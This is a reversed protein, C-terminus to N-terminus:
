LWIERIGLATELLPARYLPSWGLSSLPTSIQPKPLTYPLLPAYHWVSRDTSQTIRLPNVERAIRVYDYVADLNGGDRPCTYQIDSPEYTAGCLTCCFGLLYPNM